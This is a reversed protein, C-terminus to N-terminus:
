RPDATRGLPRDAEGDGQRDQESHEPAQGGAQSEGSRLPLVHPVERGEPDHHPAEGPGAQRERSRHLKAKQHFPTVVKAFRIKHLVKKHLKAQKSKITTIAPKAALVPGSAGIVLAHQLTTPSPVHATPPGDASTTAPTQGLSAASFDAFTDRLIGENVFEAIVDVKTKNSNFVEIATNGWRDTFTCLRGLGFPDPFTTFLAHYPDLNIVANPDAATPAPLDGAFVRFGAANSDAMWCVLEYALPSGDIDQAHALVIKAVSNSVINNKDVGKSYVTLTKKFLNHVTFNVPDAAAGPLTIPQYPYQATVDVQAKGIPDVNELDCGGNLNKNAASLNDFYMGLGPVFNVNAEGSEDTYVSVSNYGYPLPRYNEHLGGLVQSFLCKSYPM